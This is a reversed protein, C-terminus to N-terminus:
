TSVNVRVTVNAANSSNVRLIRIRIYKNIVNREVARTMTATPFALTIFGGKITTWTATEDLTDSEQIQLVCETFTSSPCDVYTKFQTKNSSQNDDITAYYYQSATNVVFSDNIIEKHM